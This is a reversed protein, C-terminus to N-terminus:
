EQTLIKKVRVYDDKKHPVERMLDETHAGSEHPETDERFVNALSTTHVIEPVGTTDYGELQSIYGVIADLDKVLASMEADNVDIRALSALKKIDQKQIMSTGDM